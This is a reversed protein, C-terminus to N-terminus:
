LFTSFCIGSLDVTQMYPFCPYLYAHVVLAWHLRKKNFDIIKPSSSVIPCNSEAANPTNEVLSDAGM